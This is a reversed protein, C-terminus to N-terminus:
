YRLGKTIIQKPSATNTVSEWDDRFNTLDMTCKSPEKRYIKVKKLIKKVKEINKFKKKEIKKEINKFKM